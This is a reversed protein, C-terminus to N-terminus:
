EGVSGTVLSIMNSKRARESKLVGEGCRGKMNEIHMEDRRGCEPLVKKGYPPGYPPPDRPPDM